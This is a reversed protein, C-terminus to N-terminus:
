GASSDINTLELSTFLFFLHPGLEFTEPLHDAIRQNQQLRYSHRLQLATFILGISALIASLVGFAIIRTETSSQQSQQLIHQISVTTLNSWKQYVSLSINQGM